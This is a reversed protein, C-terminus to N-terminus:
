RLAVFDVGEGAVEADIYWNALNTSYGVPVDISVTSGPPMILQKSSTKDVASTGLYVNDTNTNKAMVLVSLVKTASAMLPEADGPVAVNQVGYLPSLVNSEAVTQDIKNIFADVHLGNAGVTARVSSSSDKIEVAGIELDGEMTVKLPLIYDSLTLDDEVIKWEATDTFFVTAGVISAGPLKGASVDTSLATYNPVNMKGVFTVGM